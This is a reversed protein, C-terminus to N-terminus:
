GQDLQARIQLRKLLGHIAELSISELSDIGGPQSDIGPSRLINVFASESRGDM